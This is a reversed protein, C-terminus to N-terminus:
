SAKRVESHSKFAESSGTDIRYSPVDRNAERTIDKGKIRLTRKQTYVATIRGRATGTGWTWEVEDGVNYGNGKSM